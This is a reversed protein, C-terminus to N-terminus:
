LRQKHPLKSPSVDRDVAEEQIPAEAQQSQRMQHDLKAANLIWDPPMSRARPVGHAPGLTSSSAEAPQENNERRRPSPFRSPSPTQVRRPDGRSYLHAELFIARSGYYACLLDRRSDPPAEFAVSLEM